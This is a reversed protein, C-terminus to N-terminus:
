LKQVQEVVQVVLERTPVIILIQPDRKKEKSFKWHRLCPLLYAFTKGTGTQAIGVLDAGSMMASFSKEQIGTPQTYGLDKLAKHLSSTLNLEEFTMDVFTIFLIRILVSEPRIYSIRHKFLSIPCLIVREAVIKIPIMKHPM